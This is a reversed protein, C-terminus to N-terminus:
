VKMKEVEEILKAEIKAEKLSIKLVDELNKITDEVNKCHITTIGLKNAGEINQEFDDIFIAEEPKVKLEDLVHQYIKCDPKRMGLKCSEFIAHFHKEDLSTTKGTKTKDHYFNNTLVVVTLGDDKLKQLVPIWLPNMQAGEREWLARDKFGDMINQFNDTDNHEKNYIKALHPITEELSKEGCELAAFHQEFEPSFVLKLIKKAKDEGGDGTKFLAAPGAILVGGMDFIVAKYKRDITAM